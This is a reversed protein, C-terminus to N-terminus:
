FYIKERYFYLFSLFLIIKKTTFRQFHTHVQLIYFGQRRQFTFELFVSSMNLPNGTRRSTGLTNGHSWKVLHYQALGMKERDDWSLPNKSWRYFIICFKVVFCNELWILFNSLICLVLNKKIQYIIFTVYMRNIIEVMHYDVYRYVMQSADHGFSGIELPCIQSDLPFKRLDM